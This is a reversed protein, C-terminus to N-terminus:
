GGTTNSNQERRRASRRAALQPAPHSSRRRALNAEAAAEARRAQGAIAMAQDRQATLLAIQARERATVRGDGTPRSLWLAAATATVALIAVALALAGHRRSLLAGLARGAATNARELRSARTFPVSARPAPRPPQPDQGETDQGEGPPLARVLGRGRRRASSSRHDTADPEHV